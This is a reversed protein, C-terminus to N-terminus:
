PLQKRIADAARDLAAPDPNADQKAFDLDGVASVPILHIHVHRVELGVVAVGIKVPQLAAHIARGVKQAVDWLHHHLTAPVDLWHDIEERPVVLTHGPKVPRASLFGVCRDDKWVFRAPLEGAIIRSFISAM